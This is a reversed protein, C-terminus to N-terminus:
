LQMNDCMMNCYEKGKLKGNQGMFQMSVSSKIIINKSYNAIKSMLNCKQM